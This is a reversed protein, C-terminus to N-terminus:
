HERVRPSFACDLHVMNLLRLPAVGGDTIMCQDNTPVAVTGSARADALRQGRVLGYELGALMALAIDEVNVPVDVRTQTIIQGPHVVRAPHTQPIHARIVTQMPMGQNDIYQFISSDGAGGTLTATILIQIIHYVCSEFRQHCM